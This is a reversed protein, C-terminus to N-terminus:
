KKKKEGDRKLNKAFMEANCIYQQLKHPDIRNTLGDEYRSEEMPMSSTSHQRSIRQASISTIRQKFKEFDRELAAQYADPLLQRMEVIEKQLDAIDVKNGQEPPDM